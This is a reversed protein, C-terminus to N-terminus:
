PTTQGSMDLMMPNDFDNAHIVLFPDQPTGVVAFIYSTDPDLEINAFSPWDTLLNTGTIPSEDGDDTPIVTVNYLGAPVTFTEGPDAFGVAGFDFLSGAGFESDQEPLNPGTVEDTTPEVLFLELNVPPADEISNLLTIRATNQTDVGGPSTQGSGTLNERIITWDFEGSAVSGTTAITIQSNAPLTVEFPGLIADNLLDGAPVIAVTARGAPLELWGSFGNPNVDAIALQGNIYIDVVGADSILHAARVLANGRQLQAPSQNTTSQADPAETAQAQQDPTPSADQALAPVVLLAFLGVLLLTNRVIRMEDRWYWYVANM